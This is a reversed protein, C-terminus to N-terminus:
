YKTSGNVVVGRSSKSLAPDLWMDSVKKWQEKRCTIINQGNTKKIIMM